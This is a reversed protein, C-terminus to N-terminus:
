FYYNFVALYVYEHLQGWAQPERDSYLTSRALSDFLTSYDFFLIITEASIYVAINNELFTDM